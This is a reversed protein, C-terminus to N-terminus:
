YLPTIAFLAISKKMEELLINYNDNPDSTVNNNMLTIGNSSQLYNEVYIFSTDNHSRIQICKNPPQKNTTECNLFIFYPQHDSCIKTLALIYDIDM